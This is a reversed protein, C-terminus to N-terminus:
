TIESFPIDPECLQVKSICNCQKANNKVQGLREPSGMKTLEDYLIHGMRAERAEEIQCPTVIGDSRIYWALYGPTCFDTCGNRDDEDWSIIRIRKSYKHIAKKLQLKVTAEQNADLSFMNNTARGVPLTKGARFVSAGARVSAEIVEEVENYNEHNVTMAIIVPVSYKTMREVNAISEAFSGIRGRLLDHTEASGDISVQVYVNGLLSILEIEEDCWHLGNSYVNVNTFLSSAATLISRFGRILKAEGGTLTIDSVGHIALKQMASIWQFATLEQSSAKGSNAYCFSCNLNCANTLQLTCSIPLFSTQSGTLQLAGEFIGEKWLATFPHMDLEASLRSAEMKEQSIVEWIKATKEVSNTRAMLLAIQAGKSSLRFYVMSKRDLLIAGNPQLHLVLEHPAM